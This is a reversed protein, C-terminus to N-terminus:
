LNAMAARISAQDSLAPAGAAAAGGGVPLSRAEGIWRDPPRSAASRAPLASAWSLLRSRGASSSARPSTAASSGLLELTAEDEIGEAVVRLGLAHGLRDDCPGARPRARTGTGLGTIFSRDLKLEHVALREPVRALHLRRRLRRDLRRPRPRSARQDAQGGPLDGIVTTETIELILAIGAVQRALLARRARHLRPDLLNAASINVSVTSTAARARWAACQALAEDLM